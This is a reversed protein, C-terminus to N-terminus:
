YEKVPIFSSNRIVSLTFNTEYQNYDRQPAKQFADRKLDQRNVSTGHLV